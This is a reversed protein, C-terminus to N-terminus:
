LAKRRSLLQGSPTRMARKAPPLPGPLPTGPPLGPEPRPLMAPPLATARFGSYAVAEPLERLLMQLRSIPGLPSEVHLVDCFQSEYM